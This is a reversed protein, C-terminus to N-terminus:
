SVLSELKAMRDIVTHATPGVLDDLVRGDGLFVVRDARAAASPDHTVMVVTRGLRDVADRLIDLVEAGARSDLNGTPEDGFLVDPRGALARACAVRQQQGGSMEAPIHGLRDRIGLADIVGDLWDQDPKRGAIDLAVTINDLATLMPLLNFSQFVFGVHDRRFRTLDDDKMDTLDVGAISVRGATPEDLGALCHLLTSKGSGSPGMIATFQGADFSVSVDDLAVVRAEGAGYVMSLGEAM